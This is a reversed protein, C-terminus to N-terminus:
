YGRRDAPAGPHARAGRYGSLAGRYRSGSIIVSPKFGQGDSVLVAEEVPLGGEPQLGRNVASPPVSGNPLPAAHQAGVESPRPPLRNHPVSGNPLPAAHQAGVESPRPPLRNYHTLVIPMRM